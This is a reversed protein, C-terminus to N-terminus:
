LMSLSFHVHTSLITGQGVWMLREVAAWRHWGERESGLPDERDAGRGVEKEEGKERGTSGAAM